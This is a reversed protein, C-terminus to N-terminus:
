QSVRASPGDQLVSEERYLGARKLMQIETKILEEYSATVISKRALFVLDWGPQIHNIMASLSARMRRKVRNRTVANGVVKGVSIGIRITNEPNQDVILILLPHAFSKGQQRVRQFDITRTLRFKRKM